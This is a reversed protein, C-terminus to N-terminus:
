PIKRFRKPTFFPRQQPPFRLSGTFSRALMMRDSDGAVLRGLVTELLELFGVVDQAIRLLLLHVILEAVIRFVPTGAPPAAGAAARFMPKAPNSERIYERTGTCPRRASRRGRARRGTGANGPCKEVLPERRESTGCFVGCFPVSM